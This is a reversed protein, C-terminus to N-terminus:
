LADMLCVFMKNLCYQIGVFEENKFFISVDYIESAQRPMDALENLLM